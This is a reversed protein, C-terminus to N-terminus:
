YQQIKFNKISGGGMNAEYGAQKLRKAIANLKEINELNFHAEGMLYDVHIEGGGEQEIIGNVTSACHNCTMGTISLNVENVEM